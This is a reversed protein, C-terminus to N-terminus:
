CEEIKKNRRQKSQEATQQTPSPFNFMQFIEIAESKISMEM